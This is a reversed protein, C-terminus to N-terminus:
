AFHGRKRVLHGTIQFMKRVQCAFLRHLLKGRASTGVWPFFLQCSSVATNDIADIISNIIFGEFM